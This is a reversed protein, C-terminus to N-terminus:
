NSLAIKIHELHHREHWSLKKLLEAVTVDSGDSLTIKRSLDENTVHNGM